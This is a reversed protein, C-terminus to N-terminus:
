KKWHGAIIHVHHFFVYVGWDHDGGEENVDTQSKGCGNQNTKTGIEIEAKTHNSEGQEHFTLSFTTRKHM